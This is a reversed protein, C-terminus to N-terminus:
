LTINNLKAYDRVIWEPTSSPYKTVYELLSRVTDERAKQIDEKYDTAFLQRAYGEAYDLGKQYALSEREKFYPTGGVKLSQITIDSIGSKTEKQNHSDVLENIKNFVEMLYDRGMEPVPVHKLKQIKNNIM